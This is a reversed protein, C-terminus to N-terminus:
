ASLIKVIKKLTFIQFSNLHKWNKARQQRQQHCYCGNQDAHIVSVDASSKETVVDNSHGSSSIWFLVANEVVPSIKWNRELHLYEPPRGAILGCDRFAPCPYCNKKLRPVAASQLASPHLAAARWACTVSPTTSSATWSASSTMLTTTRVTM